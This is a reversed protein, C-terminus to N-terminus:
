LRRQQHVGRALVVDQELGDADALALDVDDVVGVRDHEGQHGARAVRNLGELRAHHLDGVHDADVLGLMREGVRHDALDLGHEREPRVAVPLDGHDAGLSQLALPDGLQQLRDVGVALGDGRGAGEGLAPRAVQPGLHEPDGGRPHAALELLPRALVRVQFSNSSRTTLRSSSGAM